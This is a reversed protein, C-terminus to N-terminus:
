EGDPSGNGSVQCRNVFLDDNRLNDPPSVSTQNGAIDTAIATLVVRERGLVTGEPIVLDGTWLSDGAAHSLTVVGPASPLVPNVLEWRVVVSQLGTDDSVDVYLPVRDSGCDGAEYMEVGPVKANFFGVVPPNSDV